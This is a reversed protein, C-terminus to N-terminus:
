EERFFEKIENIWEPIIYNEETMLKIYNEAFLIKNEGNKDDFFEKLISKESARLDLAYSSIEESYENECKIIDALKEYENKFESITKVFLKGNLCDEIETEPSKPNSNIKVLQTRNEKNVIRRWRIVNEYKDLTEYDIFESDTDTLLFIKGLEKDNSIGMNEKIDEYPNILNRYLEKVKRAGGVPIIRLRNDKIEREFYKEFYIKESTGECIIWNYPVDSIISTIMSQSLDTTGKINIHYPQKGKSYRIQHNIQERYNVLDILDFLHNNSNENKSIICVNAKSIIPLFGYWHSSFIVQRCDQSIDFLARFQEFCASIHLSSEPEDIAIILNKGDKRHNKLLRHSIDILAKQKEGSSLNAIEIASDGTKKHLKRINFFSNIILNNMYSKRLNINKETPTKYLYGDLEVELQSFFENLKKNIELISKTTVKDNLLNELSEGMLMQIQNTELRTFLETDIDRPIYVYDLMYKLEKFINSLEADGVKNKILSELIGLYPSMKNDIGIPFIYYDINFNNISEKHFHMFIDKISKDASGLNIHSDKIDRYLSDLIEFTPILDKNKIEAKKIAFIPMIFPISKTQTVNNLNWKGDNFFCNLAELISSKGVGNNGLVGCFNHKNSLPIFHIGQYTKFSRIFLGLIM